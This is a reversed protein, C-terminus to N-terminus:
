AYLSRTVRYCQAWFTTIIFMDSKTLNHKQSEQFTSELECYVTGITCIHFNILRSFRSHLPPRFLLEFMDFLISCKIKSMLYKHMHIRSCQFISVLKEKNSRRTWWDFCHSSVFCCSIRSKSIISYIAM